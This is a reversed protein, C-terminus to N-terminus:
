YVLIIGKILLNWFLLMHIKKKWRQVGQCTYTFAQKPATKRVSCKLFSISTMEM